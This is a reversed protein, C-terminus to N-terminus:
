GGAPASTAAAPHRRTAATKNIQFGNPGPARTAATRPSCRPARAAARRPEARGHGRAARLSGPAWWASRAAGRCRRRPPTRALGPRDRGATGAPHPLGPHATRGAPRPRAAGTGDPAAPAGCPRRVRRHVGLRRLLAAPLLLRPLPLRLQVNLVGTVFEFLAAASWCRAAVAAGPRAGLPGCRRCAFLKPVVSWLKALLVPVLVIGLTVHVGQTLRYLWYPHTPWSFLYFGLLGKDPTKDNVPSLDPNYAAYSLLGTM